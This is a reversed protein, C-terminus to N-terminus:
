KGPPQVWGGNKNMFLFPTNHQPITLTFAGSAKNERSELDLMNYKSMYSVTERTQPSLRHLLSISSAITDGGSDLAKYDIKKYGNSTDGNQAAIIKNFVPVIYKKIDNRLVSVDAPTYTTKGSIAYGIDTYTEAGFYNAIKTRVKVLNDFITGYEKYHALYYDYAIKRLASDNAFEAQALSYGKDKYTISSTNYFSDFENVYKQQETILNLLKEEMAPSPEELKNIDTDILESLKERNPAKKVLNYRSILGDLLINNVAPLNVLDIKYKQNSTDRSSNLQTMAAALSFDMELKSFEKYIEAQRETSANPFEATMEDIMSKITTPNLDIYKIDDFKTTGHKIPSELPIPSAAAMIEYYAWHSKPLDNFIQRNEDPNTIINVARNILKVAEARFIPNDPKFTGDGYGGIFGANVLACIDAEAWHGSIDSFENTNSPTPKVLRTLIAVFEARTLYKDPKFTGDAYGGIVDASSLLSIANSGWHSSPVDSFTKGSDEGEVDMVFSLMKAGQARTVSTDPRVSGDAYGGIYKLYNTKTDTVLEVSSVAGAVSSFVISLTLVTAAIRSFTKKFM